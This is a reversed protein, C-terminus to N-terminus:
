IAEMAQVADELTAFDKLVLAKVQAERNNGSVKLEQVQVNKAELADLTAIEEDTATGKAEKRTLTNAYALLDKQKNNDGVMAEIDMATKADIEAVRKDQAESFLELDSFQKLSMESTVEDGLEFVVQENNKYYTKKRNDIKYVWEDAIFCVAYGDKPELPKKITSFPPQLFKGKEKPNAQGLTSGRIERTNKDYLYFM